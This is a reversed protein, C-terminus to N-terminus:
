KADVAEDFGWSPRFGQHNEVFDKWMAVAESRTQANALVYIAWSEPDPVDGQVKGVPYKSWDRPSYNQITAIWELRIDETWEIQLWNPATDRDEKPLKVSM